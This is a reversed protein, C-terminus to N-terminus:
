MLNMSYVACYIMYMYMGEQETTFSEVVPEGMGASTRSTVTVSYEHYPRTEYAVTLELEDTVVSQIMVVSNGVSSLLDREQIEVTYNVLGNPTAPALWTVIIHSGNSTSTLNRVPSPVLICLLLLISKCAKFSTTCVYTCVARGRLAYMRVRICCLYVDVSRFPVLRLYLVVLRWSIKLACSGCHFVSM